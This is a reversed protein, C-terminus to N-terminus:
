NNENAKELLEAYEFLSMQDSAFKAYAPDFVGCDKKIQESELALSLAEGSTMKGFKLELREKKWEQIKTLM